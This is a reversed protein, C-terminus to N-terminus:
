VISNKLYSNSRYSMFYVTQMQCFIMLLILQSCWLDILANRDEKATRQLIESKQRFKFMNLERERKRRKM